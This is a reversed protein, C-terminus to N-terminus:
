YNSEAEALHKEMRYDDMVFGGGIDIVVPAVIDFGLNQYARISGANFKNVTLGMRKLGEKKAMAELFRLIERACGKGRFSKELYFKSIFLEDQHSAFSVYGAMQGSAYVLYFEYLGERSQQYMLEAKQFKAMMFSVQAAGIIPIYHEEWIDRAFNELLRFDALEIIKKFDLSM